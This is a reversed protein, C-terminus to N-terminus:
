RVKKAREDAKQAWMTMKNEAREYQVQDGAFDSDKSEFPIEVLDDTDFMCIKGAEPDAFKTKAERGTVPNPITIKPIRARAKGPSDYVSAVRGNACFPKYAIPNDWTWKKHEWCVSRYPSNISACNPPCQSVWKGDRIM